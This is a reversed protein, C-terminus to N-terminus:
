SGCVLVDLYGSKRSTCQHLIPLTMNIAMSTKGKLLGVLTVAAPNTKATEVELGEEFTHFHLEAIVYLNNM